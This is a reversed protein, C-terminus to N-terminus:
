AEFGQFGGPRSVKGSGSGNFNFNNGFLGTSGVSGEASLPLTQLDALHRCLVAAFCPV